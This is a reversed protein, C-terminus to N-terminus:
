KATNYFQFLAILGEDKKLDPEQDKLFAKVQTQQDNFLVQLSKGSTNLKEIKGDKSSYYTIEQVMAKTQKKTYWDETSVSKASYHKLLSIKGTVLTEFFDEKKDAKIKVFEHSKGSSDALTFSKLSDQVAYVLDKDMYEVQQDALNYRLAPVDLDKGSNTHLKGKTFTDNFYPTGTYAASRTQQLTKGAGGVSLTQSFLNGSCLLFPMFLAIKIKM